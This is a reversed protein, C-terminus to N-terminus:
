SQSAAKFAPTGHAALKAATLTVAQEIQGATHLCSLFFRLRAQGKDIAPAVLPQVNIGADFLENSLLMAVADDGVMVPAVGSGASLGTDLGAARALSLFAEANGRLRAVREPEASLIEIAKLAAAANAPSIGASFIFGPCTYRLYRILDRSGAVYGGCSALSKSLTGMVIDIESGAVGFHDALGRGAPGLVGVSHAEDVMLWAEHRKKLRLLELLDPWDGDTSYIGEVLILALRHSGRERTLIRDLAALDNHPFSLCRAGSLRAGTVASNHMLADYVILDEPGYLHGVVSVNTAYGGVFVLADDAGSLRALARELELHLEREGSSLRSASVSTGHRLVADNAARTVLEHGSLGLYNYSAFNVLTRGASVITDRGPGDFTRFFPNEIGAEDLARLRADLQPLAPLPTARASAARPAPRDETLHDVLTAISPQKWLLEPDIRRGAWTEVEGLVSAVAVSDLGYGAIPAALDLRERAIGTEGAFLTVLKERVQERTMSLTMPAPSQPLRDVNAAIIDASVRDATGM